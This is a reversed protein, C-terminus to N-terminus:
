SRLLSVFLCGLILLPHDSKVGVMSPSIYPVLRVLHFFFFVFVLVMVRVPLGQFKSIVCYLVIHNKVVTVDGDCFRPDGCTKVCQNLEVCVTQLMVAHTIVASEVGDDDQRLLYAQDYMKVNMGVTADPM